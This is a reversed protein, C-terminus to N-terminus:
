VSGSKGSDNQKVGHQQLHDAYGQLMQVIRKKRLGAFGNLGDLQAELMFWDIAHDQLPKFSCRAQPNGLYLKFLMPGAPGFSGDLSYLGISQGYEYQPFGKTEDISCGIGINRPLFPSVFGSIDQIVHGIPVYRSLTVELSPEILQAYGVSFPWVLWGIPNCGPPPITRGYLECRQVHIIDSRSDGTGADLPMERSIQPDM